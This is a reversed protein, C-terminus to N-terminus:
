KSVAKLLTNNELNDKYAAEDETYVSSIVRGPMQKIDAAYGVGCSSAVQMSVESVIDAMEQSKLLEAIGASNLEIKVSM